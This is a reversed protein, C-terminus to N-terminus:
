CNGTVAFRICVAEIDEAGVKKAQGVADAQAKHVFLGGAM